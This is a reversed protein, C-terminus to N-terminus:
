SVTVVITSNLQILFFSASMAFVVLYLRSGTLHQPEKSTDDSEDNAVIKDPAAELDSNTVSNEPQTRPRSIVDVGHISETERVKEM